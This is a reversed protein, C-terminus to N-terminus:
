PTEVKVSAMARTLVRDLDQPTVLDLDGLRSFGCYKHLIWAVSESCVGESCGNSFPNRKLGFVKAIVIGLIQTISYSKGEAGDIYGLLKPYYEEPVQVNHAVVVVNHDAFKKPCSVRVGSGVAEFIRYEGDDDEFGLAAHSYPTGMWWRIALSIPNFHRQRTLLVSVVIM